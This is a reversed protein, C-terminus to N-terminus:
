RKTYFMANRWFFLRKVSRTPLIEATRRKFERDTLDPDLIPVDYTTPGSRVHGTSGIGRRVAYAAGMLVNMPFALFPVPRIGGFAPITLVALVGGPALADRLRVLAAELPMHHLSAICSIFDYDGGEFDFLDCVAFKVNKVDSFRSRAVDIAPAYRDIADVHDVREAVRCSFEGTGCGVDLARKAGAPVHRL